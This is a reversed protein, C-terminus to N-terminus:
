CGARIRAHCPHTFLFRGRVFALAAPAHVFSAHVICCGLFHGSAVLNPGYGKVKLSMNVRTAFRTRRSHLVIEKLYLFLKANLVLLLLGFPHLKNTEKMRDVPPLLPGTVDM